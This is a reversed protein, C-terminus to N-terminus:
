TTAKELARQLKRAATKVSSRGDGLGNVAAQMLRDRADPLLPVFDVLAATVRAAHKGQFVGSAAILPDVARAAAEPSTKGYRHLIDISNDRVIVSSDSGIWREVDPLLPAIRDPDITAVRALSGVSEWRVRTVKSSAGAVLRDLFPLLLEPQHNSVRTIADAADGALPQDRGDRADFLEDLLQPDTLVAVAAAENAEQTRDARMEAIRPHM